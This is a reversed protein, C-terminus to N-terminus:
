LKRSLVNHFVMLDGPRIATEFGISPFAEDICILGLVLIFNESLVCLVGAQCEM